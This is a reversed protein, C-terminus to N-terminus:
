LKSMLNRFWNATGETINQPFSILGKAEDERAQALKAERDPDNELAKLISRVSNLDSAKARANLLIKAAAARNDAVVTNDDRRMVKGAFADTKLGLFKGISNLLIFVHAAKFDPEDYMGRLGHQHWDAVRKADAIVMLDVQAHRTGKQTTYPVEIHVNRGITKAKYGLSKMYTELEKKVSKEDAVGFHKMLDAADVFLDIDGSEVKYGASGIDPVVDVRNPLESKVQEVIGRVFERAVAGDGFVNGSENLFIM